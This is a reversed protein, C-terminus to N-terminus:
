MNFGAFVYRRYPLDAATKRRLDDCVQRYAMGMYHLGKSRLIDRFGNYVDLLVQWLKVFGTAARSGHSGNSNPHVVHNWFECVEGPLKPDGWHRLIALAQTETLFNSSIERVSEINSFIEAPDVLQMDVENLDAMLVDAWRQFSNFDVDPAATDGQLPRYRELQIKRYVGYLIFISELRDAHVTDVSQEVLDAITVAAPHFDTIGRGRMAADMEHHFFTCARKNPFVFCTDVLRERPEKDLYAEVINKILSAM